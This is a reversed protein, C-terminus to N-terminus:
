DVWGPLGVGGNQRPGRSGLMANRALSEVGDLAISAGFTADALGEVSGPPAVLYDSRFPIVRTQHYFHPDINKQTKKKTLPFTNPM